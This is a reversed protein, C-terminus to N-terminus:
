TRGVTAIVADLVKPYVDLLAKFEEPTYDVLFTAEGVKNDQVVVDKVRIEVKM